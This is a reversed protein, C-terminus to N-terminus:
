GRLPCGWLSGSIGFGWLTLGGQRLVVVGTLVVFLPFFSFVGCEPRGELARDEPFQQYVASLRSGGEM